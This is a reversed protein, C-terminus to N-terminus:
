WIIESPNKNTTNIEVNIRKYDSFIHSVMEIKRFKNLSTKHGLIHGIKCVIRHPWSFSMHEVARPHIATYIETLDM